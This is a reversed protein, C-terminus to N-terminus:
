ARPWCRGGCCRTCGAAATWPRRTRGPAWRTPWAWTTAPRRASWPGPWRRTCGNRATTWAPPPRARGARRATRGGRGRRARGARVGGGPAAAAARVPPLPDRRRLVGARRHAARRGVRRGPVPGAGPLCLGAPGPHADRGPAGAGPQRDPRQRGAGPRRGAAPAGRPLVPCRRRGPRGPGPRGGPPGARGPRRAPRVGPLRRHRDPHPDPQRRAADLCGTELAQRGFAM